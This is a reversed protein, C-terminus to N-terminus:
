FGRNMLWSNPLIKNKQASSWCTISKLVWGFSYRTGDILKKDEFPHTLLITDVLPRENHDKLAVHGSKIVKGIAVNAM